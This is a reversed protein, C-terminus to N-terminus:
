PEPPEAARVAVTARIPEDLWDKPTPEPAASEEALPFEQPEPPVESAPQAQDAPSLGAAQLAKRLAAVEQELAELRRGRGAGVMWAALFPYALVLFVIFIVGDM